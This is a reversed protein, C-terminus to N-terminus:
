PPHKVVHRIKVAASPTVVLLLNEIVCCANNREFPIIRSPSMCKHVPNKTSDIIIMWNYFCIDCLTNAM